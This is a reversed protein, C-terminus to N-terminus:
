FIVQIENSFADITLWSECRLIVDPDYCHILQNISSVKNSTSQFKISAVKLQKHNVLLGHNVNSCTACSSGVGTVKYVCEAPTDEIAM